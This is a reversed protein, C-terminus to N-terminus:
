SAGERSMRRGASAVLQAFNGSIRRPQVAVSFSDRITEYKSCTDVIWQQAEVGIPMDSVEDKTAMVREAHMTFVVSFRRARQFLEVSHLRFVRGFCEVDLEVTFVARTAALKGRHYWHCWLAVESVWGVSSEGRGGRLLTSKARDRVSANTLTYSAEGNVLFKTCRAEGNACFIDENAKFAHETMAEECLAQVLAFGDRGSLLCHLVLHSNLLPAYMEVHLSTLLTSSLPLIRSLDSERIEAQRNACAEQHKRTLCQTLEKSLDWQRIFGRLASADKVRQMNLCLLENVANTVGSVFSSFSVLALLVVVSAFLRELTSQPAVNQTSPTFQTLSWHLSVAYCRLFDAGVLDHARLWSPADDGLSAGHAGLAYWACGIYHTFLFIISINRVLKAVLCVYDTRVLTCLLGFLRAFKRLRLVRAFRALRIFRTLRLTSGTGRASAVAVSEFLYGGFDLSVLFADPVLWTKAYRYAIRRPNMEVKEDDCYGLLFSLVLDLAWYGSCTLSIIQLGLYEPIDFVILPLFMIDFIIALAGISLWVMESMSGPTRIMPALIMCLMDGLSNLQDHICDSRKFELTSMSRLTAASPILRKVDEVCPKILWNERIHYYDDCDRGNQCNMRDVFALMLAQWRNLVELHGCYSNCCNSNYEDARADSECEKECVGVTFQIRDPGARVNVRGVDSSTGVGKEWVAKPTCFEHNEAKTTEPTGAEIIIHDIQLPAAQTFRCTGEQKNAEYPLPGSKECTNQLPLTRTAQPLSCQCFTGWEQTSLTSSRSWSPGNGHSALPQSCNWMESLGKSYEAM